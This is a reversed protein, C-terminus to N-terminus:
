AGLFSKICDISEQQNFYKTHMVGNKPEFEYSQTQNGKRSYSMNLTDIVLDNGQEDFIIPDEFEDLYAIVSNTKDTPEFNSTVTYIQFKEANANRSLDLIFPSGKRMDLLGPIAEYNDIASLIKCVLNPACLDVLAVFANVFDDLRNALSTGQHPTGFTMVKNVKTCHRAAVRAIVGGQSHGILAIEDIGTQALENLYESLNKAVDSMKESAFLHNFGFIRYGNSLYDSLLKKIETTNFCKEVSSFVGHVFVIAKKNQNSTQKAPKKGKSFDPKDIEFFALDLDDFVFLKKEALEIGAQILADVPHLIVHIVDGPLFGFKEPEVRRRRLRFSEVNVASSNKEGFTKADLFSNGQLADRATWVPKNNISQLVIARYGAPIHLRLDQSVLDTTGLDIQIVQIGAEELEKLDFGAYMSGLDDLELAKVVLPERKDGRFAQVSIAADPM